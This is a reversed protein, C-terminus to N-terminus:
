QHTEREDDGTAAQLDFFRGVVRGAPGGQGLLMVCGLLAGAQVAAGARRCGESILRSRWRDAVYQQLEMHSGRVFRWAQIWHVLRSPTATV